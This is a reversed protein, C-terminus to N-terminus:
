GHLAYGVEEMNTTAKYAIRHLQPIHESSFRMTSIFLMTNIERPIFSIKTHMSREHLHNIKGFLL